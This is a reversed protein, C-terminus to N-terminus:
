SLSIQSISIIELSDGEYDTIEERILFEINERM